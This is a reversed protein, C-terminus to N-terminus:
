QQNKGRVWGHVREHDKHHWNVVRNEHFIVGVDVQYWDVLFCVRERYLADRVMDLVVRYGNGKGPSGIRDRSHRLVDFM